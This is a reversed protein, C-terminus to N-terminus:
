RLAPCIMDTIGGLATMTPPLLKPQEHGQVSEGELELKELGMATLCALFRSQHIDFAGHEVSSVGISM